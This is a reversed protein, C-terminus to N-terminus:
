PLACVVAQVPDHGSDLVILHGHVHRPCGAQHLASNRDSSRSFAPRHLYRLPARSEVLLMWGTCLRLVCQAPLRSKCPDLRTTAFSTARGTADLTASFPSLLMLKANSLQLPRGRREGVPLHAARRPRWFACFYAMASLFFCRLLSEDAILASLITARWTYFAYLAIQSTKGGSPCHDGFTFEV